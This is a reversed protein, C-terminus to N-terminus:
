GSRVCALCGGGECFGMWVRWRGGRGCWGVPERGGAARGDCETRVCSHWWARPGERLRGAPLRRDPPRAKGPGRLCAAKERGPWLFAAQGADAAPPAAWSVSAKDWGPLGPSLPLAAPFRTAPPVM